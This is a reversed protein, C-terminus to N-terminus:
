VSSAPACSSSSGAVSVRAGACNRVTRRRRYPRQSGRGPFPRQVQHPVQSRRAPNRPRAERAAAKRDNASPRCQIWVRHRGSYLVVSIVCRPGDGGRGRSAGCGSARAGDSIAPSEHGDASSRRVNFSRRRCPGCATTRLPTIRAVHDARCGLEHLPVTLSFLQSFQSYQCPRSSSGAPSHLLCAGCALLLMSAARATAAHGM